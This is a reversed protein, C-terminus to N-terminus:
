ACFTDRGYVLAWKERLSFLGELWDNNHLNYKALMNKWADTFEVEDEYDYVCKTFDKTFDNFKHFEHSLHKAANQFMHWICLRHRSEPWQSALAKAMAADQDTFISKPKKGSMTEAFTDFLWMFTEATEDYLLAAGFIITQRHNNVGVFMAFPRGDKNKRHTTDFSVVDGFYDYDVIMRSDAWFINTILDDEDGTDGTEMKRTRKSRLYNKYDVPIIGVNQRGGSQRSLFEMTERPAIESADAMDAQTIIATSLRRQSRFLHSKSPTTTIHTHYAYFDVIAYKSTQTLSIKTRALCEFRTEARHKKVNVDRKDKVRTGQASCVYIKEKLKGDNFSHSTSRRVSFGFNYAYTNYFKFAEDETEFEMGIEPILEKLIKSHVFDVRKSFSVPNTKEDDYCEEPASLNLDIDRNFDLRRRIQSGARHCDSFSNELPPPPEM